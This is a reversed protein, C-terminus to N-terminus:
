IVAASLCLVSPPVALEGVCFGINSFMEIHLFLLMNFYM